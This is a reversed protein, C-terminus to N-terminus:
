VIMSATASLSPSLSVALSALCIRRSSSRMCANRPRWSEVSAPATIRSSTGAFSRLGAPARGARRRVDDDRLALLEDRRRVVDVRLVDELPRVAARRLVREEYNNRM